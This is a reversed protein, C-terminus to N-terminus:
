SLSLLKRRFSVLPLLLLGLLGFTAGQREYTESAQTPCTEIDGTIPVLKVAIAVSEFAEKGTSDIVVDGKADRKKVTKTASAIIENNENIGTAEAINYPFKDEGNTDYCPLLDNINTFKDAHIEYMFAEKRRSTSTNTETEGEGVIIGHNNIDRAISSSSLFYDKPFMTKGTNIDHYFFKSRNSGSIKKYSFGVIINNNNIDSVQGAEWGDEQHLFAIVETDKFYVPMTTMRNENDYKRVHSYGAAIGQTNVTLATSKFAFGEDEDPTLALGLNETNTLNFETDLTWKVARRDFLENSQNKYKWVCVAEPEDKGDCNDDLNKQRDEPIGTSIDGVLVYGGGERQSIDTIISIGGHEIYEPEITFQSGDPKIVIGRREFERLYFLEEQTEGDPIFIQKTYAASGWGVKVGNESIATFNNRVSRSLGDYQYDGSDIILQSDFMIQEQLKSDYSVAIADDIKQWNPSSSKNILNAYAYNFLDIGTLYKIMFSLADANIDGSKINNLTFSIQKDISEEYDKQNDWANELATDKFDIASIDIPLNYNGRIVGIATGQNNIDTVYSHKATDSSNFEILKYTASNVNFSSLISLFLIHKKM